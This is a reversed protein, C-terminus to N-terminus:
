ASAHRTFRRGTWGLVPNKLAHLRCHRLQESPLSPGAPDLLAKMTSEGGGVGIVIKDRAASSGLGSLAAITGDARLDSTNFIVNIDPDDILMGQVVQLTDQVTGDDQIVKKFGDTFGNQRQINYRVTDNNNVMVVPNRGGFQKKFYVAAKQGAQYCSDYDDYGVYPAPTGAPPRIGHIVVPIRAAQAKQVATQIANPDHQFFLIAEAKEDILTQVAVISEAPYLGGDTEILEFGYTNALDKWIAHYANFFNQYHVGEFFFYDEQALYVIGIVPKHAVPPGGAKGGGAHAPQIGGAIAIMLVWSAVVGILLNPSPNKLNRGKTSKTNM